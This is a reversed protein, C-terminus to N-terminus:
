RPKKSPANGGPRRGGARPRGSVGGKRTAGWEQRMEAIGEMFVAAKERDDDSTLQKFLAIAKLFDDDITAQSVAFYLTRLQELPTM